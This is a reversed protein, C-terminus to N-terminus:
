KYYPKLMLYCIPGSIAVYLWLPYVWRAMKKHREFQGTFARNFTFFIFPLILGALIVHTILLVFYLTRMIGEGGFRTEPTTSHYLVYSVLFLASFLMAAYISRRHADVNKQKIFYLAVILALAACANLSAHVPPLFSFDIGLDLKEPRRMFGVLGLVIVSTIIAAINLKRELAKNQELTRM